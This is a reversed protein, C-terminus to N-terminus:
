KKGGKYFTKVNKKGNSYDFVKWGKRDVWVMQIILPDPNTYKKSFELYEKHTHPRNSTVQVFMINSPNIAVLDFLGFMDKIPVFKGKQEVKAVEYGEEELSKIAKLQNRNGKRRTTGM